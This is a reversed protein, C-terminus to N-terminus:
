CTASQLLRFPQDATSLCPDAPAAKWPTANADLMSSSTLGCSPPEVQQGSCTSSKDTDIRSSAQNIAAYDAPGPGGFSPPPKAESKAAATSSGGATVAALFLKTVVSLAATDRTDAPPCAHSQPDAPTILPSSPSLAEHEERREEREERRQRQFRRQQRREYARKAASPSLDPNLYVNYAVFDNDSKRLSSAAHLLALATQESDLHVLLRRPNAGGIRICSRDDVVPKVPMHSECFQAFVIADSSTESEPLGSIIVNQSRNPFKRRTGRQTVDRADDVGAAAATAAGEVEAATAAAHQESGNGSRRIWENRRRQRTAVPVQVADRGASPRLSPGTSTSTGATPASLNNNTRSANHKGQLGCHALLKNIKADLSKMMRQQQEAIQLLKNVDSHLSFQDDNQYCMESDSDDLECHDASASAEPRQSQSLVNTFVEEMIDAHQTKSRKGRVSNVDTTSLVRKLASRITNM